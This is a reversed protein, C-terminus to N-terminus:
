RPLPPIKCRTWDKLKYRFTSLCTEQRLELPLMSWLCEGRYLFGERARMLDFKITSKFGHRTRNVLEDNQEEQYLGMRTALYVPEKAQRIKFFTLTTTFAILQNISLSGTMQLLQTVPTDYTSSSIMRLLKNQLVQLAQLNAKTFANFRTETDRMTDLGFVNGYLALCFNLKSYFIGNTLM